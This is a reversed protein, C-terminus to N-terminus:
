SSTCRCRRGCAAKPSRSRKSSATPCCRSRTAPCTSPRFVRARSRMSWRRRARHRAGAGRYARRDARPRRRSARRLVCRRNRHHHRRRDLVGRSGSGASGRAAASDDVPPFGIGHPFFESLFRAEHLARASPIGGCELMLRAQSIGRAAAAAELAKYEITNKDPKTLLGIAKAPSASRASQGAKLEEEYGAQM